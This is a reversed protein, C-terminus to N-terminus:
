SITGMIDTEQDGYVPGVKPATLTYVVSASMRLDNWSRPPGEAQSSALNSMAYGQWSSARGLSLTVVAQAKLFWSSVHTMGERENGDAREHYHSHSSRFTNATALGSSHNTKPVQSTARHPFRFVKSFCAPSNQLTALKVPLSPPFEPFVSSCQFHLCYFVARPVESLCLCLAPFQVM